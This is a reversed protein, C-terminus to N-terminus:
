AIRWVRLGDPTKRCTFKTGHRKAYMSVSRRAGNLGTRPPCMSPPVLFSDGVEMRAFPYISHRGQGTPNPIPLNKDIRFLSASALSLNRPATAM